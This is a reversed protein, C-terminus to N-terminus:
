IVDKLIYAFYHKTGTQVQTGLELFRQYGIPDNKCNEFMELESNCYGLKVKSRFLCERAENFAINCVPEFKINKAFCSLVERAEPLTEKPHIPNM